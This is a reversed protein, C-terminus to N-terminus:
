KTGEQLVAQVAQATFHAPKFDQFTVGVTALRSAKRVRVRDVSGTPLDREAGAGSCPNGATSRYDRGHPGELCNLARQLHLHIDALRLANAAMGAQQEATRMEAMGQDGTRALARQPALGAAGAAIGLGAVIILAIRRHDRM